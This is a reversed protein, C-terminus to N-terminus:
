KSSQWSLCEFQNNWSRLETLNKTAYIGVQELEACYIVLSRIINLNLQMSENQVYDSILEIWKQIEAMKWFINM